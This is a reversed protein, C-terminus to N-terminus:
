DAKELLALDRIIHGFTNEIYNQGYEWGKSKGAEARKRIDEFVAAGETFRQIIQFVEQAARLDIKENEGQFKGAFGAPDASGRGKGPLHQAKPRHQLDFIAFHGDCLLHPAILRYDRGQGPGILLAAPIVAERIGDDPALVGLGGALQFFFQPGDATM